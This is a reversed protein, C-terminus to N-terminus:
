GIELLDVWIDVYKVFHPMISTNRRGKPPINARLLVNGWDPVRHHDLYRCSKRWRSEDNSDDQWVCLQGARGDIGINGSHFGCGSDLTGAHPDSIESLLGFVPLPLVQM